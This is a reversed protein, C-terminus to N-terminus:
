GRSDFPRAPRRRRERPRGRDTLNAWRGSIQFRAESCAHSWDTLWPSRVGARRALAYGGGGIALLAVLVGLLAIAFPIGASTSASVSKPLPGGGSGRRPAGPGGLPNASAAGAACVGADQANLAGQIAEPFQALYQLEYPPTEHLAASLTAAKFECSPLSGAKTYAKYVTTYANAGAAAPAVLAMAAAAIWSLLVVRRRM